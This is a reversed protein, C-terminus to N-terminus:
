PRVEADALVPKAIVPATVRHAIVAQAAVTEITRPAWARVASVLNALHATRTFIHNADPFYDVSVRGEYDLHRFAHDFQRRYNYYQYQGASHVFFLEVGRAIMARCDEIVREKPPFARVYMPEAAPGGNTVRRGSALVRRALRAWRKGSFVREAWYRWYFGFTRYAYGDIMIAGAVREEVRAIQFANDAGSCLGMLVFRNVGRAATLAAMAECAEELTSEEASVADRRPESDGIGSFDFRLVPFGDAALARALAVYMRNPGVRHLLGSNLVIVGPKGATDSGRAPETLVGVLSRTPGFTLAKEKMPASM